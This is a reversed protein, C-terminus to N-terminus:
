GGGLEGWFDVAEELELGVRYRGPQDGPWIWVVRFDATRGSVGHTVQLVTAVPFVADCEVMAGRASVDRTRGTYSAGHSEIRLQIEVEHRPSRRREPGSKGDPAM